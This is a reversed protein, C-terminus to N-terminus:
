PFDLQDQHSQTYRAWPQVFLREFGLPEGTVEDVGYLDRDMRALADNIEHLRHRDFSSLTGLLEQEYSAEAQDAADGLAEGESSMPPPRRRGIRSVLEDRAALLKARLLEVQQGTLGSRSDVKV